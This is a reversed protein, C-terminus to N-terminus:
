IVVGVVFMIGKRKIRQRASRGSDDAGAQVVTRGMGEISIPTKTELEILRPFEDGDADFVELIEFIREISQALVILAQKLLFLRKLNCARGLGRAAMDAPIALKEEVCHDNGQLLSLRVASSSHATFM